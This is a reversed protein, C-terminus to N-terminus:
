EYGARIYPVHVVTSHDGFYAVDLIPVVSNNPCDTCAELSAAVAKYKDAECLKVGGGSGTFGADAL